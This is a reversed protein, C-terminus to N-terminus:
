WVLDEELLSGIFQTYGGNKDLIAGGYKFLEVKDSAALNLTAQLTVMFHGVKNTGSARAIIENNRRLDINLHRMSSDKLGNFAFHYIGPKPATFIGTEMNMGGGINLINKEFTLTSNYKTFSTLRTVHFM